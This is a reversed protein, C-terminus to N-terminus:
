SRALIADRIGRLAFYYGLAGFGSVVSQCVPAIDSTVGRKAPNTTHVEVTPFGVHTIALCLAPHGTTYAGPTIIAADIGSDHAAYLKNIVEGEINSQFIEVDVGLEAAYRRIHADYEALTMPGFAQTNGKGRMNMGAGQIVLVRPM